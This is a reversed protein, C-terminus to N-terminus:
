PKVLHPMHEMRKLSSYFSIVAGSPTAHAEDSYFIYPYIDFISSYLM